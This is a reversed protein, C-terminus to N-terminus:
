DFPDPVMCKWISISRGFRPGFASTPNSQTIHLTAVRLSSSFTPPALSALWGHINQHEAPDRTRKSSDFWSIWSYTILWFRQSQFCILAQSSGIEVGDSSNTEIWDLRSILRIVSSHCAPFPIPPLRVRGRKSLWDVAQTAFTPLIILHQNENCSIQIKNSKRKAKQGRQKQNRIDM